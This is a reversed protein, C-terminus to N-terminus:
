ASVADKVLTLLLNIRQAAATESGAEAYVRFEPANGSPRLHVVDGGKLWIRLGDTRDLHEVTGLPALFAALSESSELRAVLEKGVETPVHELRESATFRLQERAVLDALSGARRAEVLAAVIPLLSDRTMLRPLPGQLGDADFGLLFGGNPEYGVVRGGAAVMASIVFPSGIRTRIVKKFAGSLDAGSNATVTTVVTEAQLLRATIQGLIDGQVIKGTQDAVLPRDGDGDTSVIADLGIQSWEKLSQRVEDPVAETDVPVFHSTRGLPAVRAGLAELCLVLLDRSVASHQWVGIKMGELARGFAGRYRAAWDGGVSGNSRRPALPGPESPGGLCALIAAEDAKTIEGAPTYFKLGNRDAPIHSGTVMIAAAQAQMAAMALAPTPVAGCDTVTCGAERAAAIVSEAISLSSERLDRGVWLGTGAPCATLFARTYDAVLDLTLDTVLGRLGSTGFKPAMETEAKTLHLPPLSM